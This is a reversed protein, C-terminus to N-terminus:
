AIEEWLATAAARPDPAGTIPRGVVLLDAGGAAAERASATRVQDGAAAGAARIGPAVLLARPGLATRLGRLEAPSAVVGHLGADLGARALRVLEEGLDPVPRGVIEAYAAADLSTLVGVGVLRLRQGAARSAAQHMARGGALHVTALAVGLAAAADVAGAVTSPIDHWKLDLFVQAGRAVLERVVAPGEGVFLVPGVKYWRVLDRLREHLRLADAADAVDLAVALEATV